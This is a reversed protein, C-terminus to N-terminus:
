KKGEMVHGQIQTLRVQAAEAQRTNPFTQVVRELFLVAQQPQGKKLWSEALSLYLTGLRDSLNDCAVRMWEPNAKLTGALQMAEQGEPLDAYSGALAECRDLCYLYQQSRYDEKAQSLLERARRVRPSVEVDANEKAVDRLQRVLRADDAFAIAAKIVGRGIDGHM